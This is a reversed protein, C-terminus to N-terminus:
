SRREPFGGRQGPKPGGYLIKDHDRSVCVEDRAGADPLSDVNALLEDWAQAQRALDSEPDSPSAGSRRRESLGQHVIERLVEGSSKGEAFAIADLEKQDHPDLDIDM